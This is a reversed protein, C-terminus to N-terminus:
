RKQSWVTFDVVWVWPNYDWCRWPRGGETADWQHMFHARPSPATSRGRMYYTTGGEAAPEPDFGSCGELRAGADDIDHLRAVRVGCVELELRSAWRPMQVSPRWRAGDPDRAYDARYACEKRSTSGEPADFTERVWLRDGPHWPAYIGPIDGPECCIDGTKHKWVTGWPRAEPRPLMPRRLQHKRGDIIARVTTGTLLMPHEKM